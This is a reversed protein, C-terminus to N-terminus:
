KQNITLNNKASGEFKNKKNGMMKKLKELTEHSEEIESKGIGRKLIHGEQNKKPGKWNKNEFDKRTRSPHFKRCCSKKCEEVM